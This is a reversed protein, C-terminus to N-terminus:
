SGQNPFSRPKVGWLEFIKNTAGTWEAALAFLALDVLPLIGVNSYKQVQVIFLSVVLVSLVIVLIRHIGFGILHLLGAIKPFRQLKEWAKGWVPSLGRRRMLRRMVTYARRRIRGQDYLVRGIHVLLVTITGLWLLPGSPPMEWNLAKKYDDGYTLLNDLAMAHLFIGPILHNAPSNVSDNAGSLSGGVLLIQGQLEKLLADSPNFLAHMAIARNYPCAPLLADADWWLRIGAPLLERLGGTTQRCYNSYRQLATSDAGWLLTMPPHQPLVKLAKGEVKQAMALAASPQFAQEPWQEAWRAANSWLPYNWVLQDVNHPDFRVSVPMYCPTAGQPQVLDPHLKWAGTQTDQLAALFIPIGQQQLECFAELLQPMTSDARQHSFTIDWFIAKPQYMEGMNRLWRAHVQYPLPWGEGSQRLTEDDLLVVTLRDRAIPADQDVWPYFGGVSLSQAKAAMHTLVDASPDLKPLLWLLVFATVVSIAARAFHPAGRQWASQMTRRLSKEVKVEESSPAHASEM